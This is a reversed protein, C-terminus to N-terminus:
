VLEVEIRVSSTPKLTNLFEYPAVAQGSWIVAATITMTGSIMTNKNECRNKILPTKNPDFLYALVRSYCKTNNYTSMKFQDTVIYEYM